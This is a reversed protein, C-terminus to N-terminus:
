SPCAERKAGCASSMSAATDIHTHTHTLTNLQFTVELGGQSVSESVKNKKIAHAAKALALM